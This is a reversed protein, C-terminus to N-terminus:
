KTKFQDTEEIKKSANKDTSNMSDKTGTGTGQWQDQAEQFAKEWGREQFQQDEGKSSFESSIWEKAKEGTKELKRKADHIKEFGKEKLKSSLENAKEVANTVEEKTQIAMEKAKGLVGKTPHSIESHDKTSEGHEQSEQRRISTEETQLLKDQHLKDVEELQQRFEPSPFTGQQDSVTNPPKHTNHALEDWHSTWRRQCVTMMLTMRQVTAEASTSSPSPVFYSLSTRWPTNERYFIGQKPKELKSSNHLRGNTIRQLQDYVSPNMRTASIDRSILWM